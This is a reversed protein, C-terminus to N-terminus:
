DKQKAFIWSGRLPLRVGEASGAGRKDEFRVNEGSVPFDAKVSPAFFM